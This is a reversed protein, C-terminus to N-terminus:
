KNMLNSAQEAWNDREARGPFTGTISDLLGYEEKTMKSVQEFTYIGIDNLTGELKPGVGSILKLDDKVDASGAGLKEILSSIRNQKEEESIEEKAESASEAVPAETVM